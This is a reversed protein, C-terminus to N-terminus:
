VLAKPRELPTASNNLWVGQLDPQGYPTLPLTWTKTAATKAATQGVVAVPRLSVVAVVITLAGLSAFCRDGM